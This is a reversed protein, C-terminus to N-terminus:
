QQSVTVGGTDQVEAHRPLGKGHYRSLDFESIVFEQGMEVRRGEPNDDDVITFATVAVLTVKPMKERKADHSALLTSISARERRRAAEGEGQLAMILQEMAEPTMGTASAPAPNPDTKDNQAM